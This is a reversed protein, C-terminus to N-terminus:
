IKTYIDNYIIIEQKRIVFILAIFKKFKKIEFSCMVVVM